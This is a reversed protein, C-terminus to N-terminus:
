NALDDNSNVNIQSLQIGEEDEIESLAASNEIASNQSQELDDLVVPVSPEEMRM